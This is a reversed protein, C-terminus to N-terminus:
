EMGIMPIQPGGACRRFRGQSFQKGIHPALRTRFPGDEADLRSVNDPRGRM